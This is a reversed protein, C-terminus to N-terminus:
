PAGFKLNRARLRDKRKRKFDAKAVDRKSRWRARVAEETGQRYFSRAYKVVLSDEPDQLMPPLERSQGSGKSSGDQNEGVAEEQIVNMNRNGMEVGDSSQPQQSRGQDSRRTYRERTPGDWKRNGVKVAAVSPEAASTRTDVGHGVLGFRAVSDPDEMGFHFLHRLSGVMAHDREQSQPRREDERVDM